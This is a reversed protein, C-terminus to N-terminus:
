ADYRKLASALIKKCVDVRTYGAAKVGAGFSSRGSICPPSNVELVFPNNKDDLRFDLRAIDLCELVRFSHRALSYLRKELLSDLGPVPSIYAIGADKIKKTQFQGDYDQVIIPLLEDGLLGVSYEKGSLFEEVLIPQKFESFLCNLSEKLDIVGNVKSKEMVGISSGEHVPKLFLPFSLGSADFEESYAVKFKATPIGNHALIEKAKAKNLALSKNLPTGGSYPIGLLELIAPMQVERDEGGLGESYNMVFFNTGSLKKEKLVEYADEDAELYSSAPVIQVLADLWDKM